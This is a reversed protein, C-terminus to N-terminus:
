EAFFPIWHRIIKRATGDKQWRALVENVQKLLEPNQKSIGWALPEVNLLSPFAMLEGEHLAYQWWLVPADFIVMDVRGARLADIAADIDSFSKKQAIPFQQYVFLESTTGRVFGIRKQNRLVSAQLGAPDYNDQRFIASLGSQMYPNAFDIRIRRAATVSMGSMIIDTKNQELYDIQKEWPVEVFVVRRHLAKGLQKAFDPEIGVIQGNQWFAMPQSDPTIGVRLVDPSPPVDTTQCGALLFAFLPLLFLMRKM